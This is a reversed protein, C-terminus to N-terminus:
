GRPMRATWMSILLRMPAARGDVGQERGYGYESIGRARFVGAGESRRTLYTTWLTKWM